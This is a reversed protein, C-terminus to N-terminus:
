KNLDAILEEASHFRKTRGAAIDASAEREAAQWEETWFYAQSADILKKPRLVIVGDEVDAVFVDGPEAHAKSRLDAPLTLQGNPRLTVLRSATKTRPATKVVEHQGLMRM